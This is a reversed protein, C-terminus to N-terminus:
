RKASNTGEQNPYKSVHTNPRKRATLKHSEQLVLQMKSRALPDGISSAKSLPASAQGLVSLLHM